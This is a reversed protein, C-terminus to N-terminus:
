VTYSSSKLPMTGSRVSNEYGLCLAAYREKGAGFRDHENDKSLRQM